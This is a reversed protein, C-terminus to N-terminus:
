YIFFFKLCPGFVVTDRRFPPVDKWSSPKPCSLVLVETKSNQNQFFCFLCALLLVFHTQEKSSEQAKERAQRESSESGCVPPRNSLSASLGATHFLSLSLACNIKYKSHLQCYTLNLLSTKAWICRSSCVGSLHLKQSVADRSLTKLYSKIM